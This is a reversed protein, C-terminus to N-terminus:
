RGVYYFVSRLHQLQVCLWLINGSGAESTIALWILLHQMLSRHLM